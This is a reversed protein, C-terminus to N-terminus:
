AARRAKERMALYGLFWVLWLVFWSHRVTFETPLPVFPELSDNSQSESSAAWPTSVIAKEAVGCPAAAVWCSPESLHTVQAGFTVNKSGPSALTFPLLVIGLAVHTLAAIGPVLAFIVLHSVQARWAASWVIALPALLTETRMM